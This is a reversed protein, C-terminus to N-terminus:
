RPRADPRAIGDVVVRTVTEGMTELAALGTPGVEVVLFPQSTFRRQVAADTAALRALVADQAAAIAEPRQRQEATLRLEVIVRARGDAVDARVQDDIAPAGAIACGPTGLAAIFSLVILARDPPLM